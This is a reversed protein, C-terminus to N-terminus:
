VGLEAAGPEVGALAGSGARADNAVAATADAIADTAEAATAGAMADTAVATTADATALTPRDALPVTWGSTVAHELAVRVFGETDPDSPPRPWVPRVTLPPLGSVPVVRVLPDPCIEPLTGPVFHVLDGDTAVWRLLEEVYGCPIPRTRLPRGTAETAPLWYDTYWEPFGPHVIEHDALEVAAVDDRGALPHSEAVAVARPVHLLAPGFNLDPVRAQPSWTLFVDVPWERREQWRFLDSTPHTSRIVRCQPHARAVARMLEPAVKAPLTTDFGVRMTRDASIGSRVSQMAREIQLTAPRIERLLFEGDRTLSVRRSTREFLPAGLRRELTRVLGSVRSTSLGLREGARGFHLTEAVALFAEIERAEIM